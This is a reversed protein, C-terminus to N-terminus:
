RSCAQMGSLKQGDRFPTSTHKGFNIARSATVEAQYSQVAALDCTKGSSLFTMTTSSNRGSERQVSALNLSPRSLRWTHITACYNTCCVLKSFRTLGTRRLAVVSVSWLTPLRGTQGVFVNKHMCLHTHTRDNAQRALYPQVSDCCDSVYLSPRSAAFCLLLGAACCLFGGTAQELWLRVDPKAHVVFFITKKIGFLARIRGCVGEMYLETMVKSLLLSYTDTLTNEKKIYLM